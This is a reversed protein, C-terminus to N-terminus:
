FIPICYTGTEQSLFEISPQLLSLLLITTVFVIFQYNNARQINNYHAAFIIEVLFIFGFIPFPEAFSQSIESMNVICTQQKTRCFISTNSSLQSGANKLQQKIILGFEYCLLIM